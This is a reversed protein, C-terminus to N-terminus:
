STTTSSICGAPALSAFPSSAPSTLTAAIPIAVATTDYPSSDLLDVLEYVLWGGLTLLTLADPRALSHDLRAARRGREV